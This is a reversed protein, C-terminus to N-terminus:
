CGGPAPRASASSAGTVLVGPRRIEGHAGGGHGPCGVTVPRVPTVTQRRGPPTRSREPELLSAPCASRGTRRSGRRGGHSASLSRRAYWFVSSCATAPSASPQCANQVTSCWKRSSYEGSSSGRPATRRSRPASALAHAEAVAHPEHGFGYLWGTRVASDTATSSRIESPRTSKPVPREDVRARARPSRCRDRVVRPSTAALRDPVDDAAPRVVLVLELALVPRMGFRRTSGLGICVAAGASRPRSWCRRRGGAPRRARARATSTRPRRTAPPPSSALDVDVAVRDRPARRRDALEDVVLGGVNVIAHARRRALLRPRRGALGELPVRLRARALDADTASHIASRLCSARCSRSRRAVHVAVASSPESSRSVGRTGRRCRRTRARCARRRADLRARAVLRRADVQQEAEDVRVLDAVLLHHLGDLQHALVDDRTKRSQRPSLPGVGIHRRLCPGLATLPAWRGLAPVDRQDSSRRGGGEARSHQWTRQATAVWSSSTAPAPAFRVPLSRRGQPTPPVATPGGLPSRHRRAARAPRPPHPRRALGRQRQGDRYLNLGISDFDVDYRGSLM